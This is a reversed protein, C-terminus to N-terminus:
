FPLCELCNEDDCGAAFTGGCEAVTAKYLSVVGERYDVEETDNFLQMDRATEAYAEYAYGSTDYDAEEQAQVDPM